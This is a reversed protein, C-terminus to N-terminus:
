LNPISELFIDKKYCIPCKNIKIVDKLISAIWFCSECFAFKFNSKNYYKKEINFEKRIMVKKDELHNEVWQTDVLVEPHAYKTKVIQAM